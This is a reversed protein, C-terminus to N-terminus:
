TPLHFLRRYEVAEAPVYDRRLHVNETIPCLPKVLDRIIQAYTLEPEQVNLMPRARSAQECREPMQLKEFLVAAHRLLIARRGLQKEPAYLCLLATQEDALAKLEPRRPVLQQTRALSWLLLQAGIAGKAGRKEWIEVTQLQIRIAALMRLEASVRPTCVVLSAPRALWAAIQVRGIWLQLRIALEWDRPRDSAVLLRCLAVNAVVLEGRVARLCCSPEHSARDSDSWTSTFGTNAPASKRSKDLEDVFVHLLDVYATFVAIDDPKATCEDRAALLKSYYFPNAGGCVTSTWPNPAQPVLAGSAFM